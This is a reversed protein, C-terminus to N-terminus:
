KLLMIKSSINLSSTKLRMFYIGSAQPNGDSDKGNWITTFKGENLHENILTNVNRGRIDFITVEVMGAEGISLNITTSPNFPNPFNSITTKVPTVDNPDTGTLINVTVINSPGSEIQDYMATVYYTHDGIELLTETYTQIDGAVDAIFANNRYVKYGTPITSPADWTLTVDNIDLTAVLNSPPEVSPSLDPLDVRTTQFVHHNSGDEVWVILIINDQDWSEDLMTTIQMEHTNGQMTIDTGLHTPVMDRDVFNMTDYNPGTYPINTETIVVHIRPNPMEAGEDKLISIDLTLDNGSLSGTFDITCPAVAAMREIITAELIAHTYPWTPEPLGDPLLTPYLSIGLVNIRGESGVYAFEDNYHHNAVAISYDEAYM